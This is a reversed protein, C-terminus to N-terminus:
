PRESSLLLFPCINVQTKKDRESAICASVVAAESANGAAAGADSDVDGVLGGVAVM